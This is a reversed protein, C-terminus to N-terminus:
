FYIVENDKKTLAHTNHDIKKSYYNGARTIHVVNKPVTLGIHNTMTENTGYVTIFDVHEGAISDSSEDRVINGATNADGKKYCLFGIQLQNYLLHRIATDKHNHGHLFLVSGSSNFTKNLIVSDLASTDDYGRGYNSGSRDEPSTSIPAINININGGKQYADVISAILEIRKSGGPHQQNWVSDLPFRYDYNGCTGGEDFRIEQRSEAHYVDPEM